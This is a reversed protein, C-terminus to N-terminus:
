FLAAQQQQIAPAMSTPEEATEVTCKRAQAMSMRYTDGVGDKRVLYGDRGLSGCVVYTHGYLKVTVGNALRSAQKRKEINARCRARWEIAYANDTPTLLDLIRAPCNAECPGCTEDMDKWAFDHPDSKTAGYQLLIVAAWVSREGTDGDIREVAAYFTKLNVIASDLVTYRHKCDPAWSLVRALIFEKVPQGHRNTSTWGM